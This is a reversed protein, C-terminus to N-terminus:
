RQPPLTVRFAFIMNDVVVRNTGVAEGGHYVVPAKFDNDNGVLLLWDHPAKPDRMPVLTMGEWKESLTNRDQKASLNIGFRALDAPEILNVFDKRKVPRVGKPARAVPMSLQGPAGRELDYASGALNTADSTSVLVVRKYAPPTNTFSGLGYSDRELVMFTSPGLGLVENVPTQWRRSPDGNLTLQYIFEAVVKGRAPSNPQIDWAVMRTNRSGNHDGGDQMLPSQLLALLRTGDPTVCLGEFGRNHRRGSAPANTATFHNHGPYAGEKPLFAPPPMLTETLRGHSDFHYVFPGYEDSVYFSGDPMRALGEPDLSDLGRGRGSSTSRPFREERADGADFGTYFGHESSLLQTAVHELQIQNKPVASRGYYPTIQIRFTQIRPHFDRAGDGFGRDPLSYLTGSFSRSGDAQETIQLSSADFAMASFLGGLTDQRGNGSRDFRDAPIRGVGVLGKNVFGHFAAQLSGAPVIAALSLALLVRCTKLKLSDRM